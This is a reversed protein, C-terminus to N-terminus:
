ATVPILVQKKRIMSSRHDTGPAGSREGSMGISRVGLGPWREAREALDPDCVSPLLLGVPPHDFSSRGEIPQPIITIGVAVAEDAITGVPLEDPEHPVHYRVLHVGILPWGPLALDIPRIIRDDTGM